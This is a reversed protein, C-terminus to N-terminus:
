RLFSFISFGMFKASTLQLAELNTQARVLESSVEALDIDELNSILVKSQVIFGQLHEKSTKIRNVRGGVESTINSVQSMASDLLGITIGITAVDNTELAVKFDDVVQYIDVPVTFGIGKFIRDGTIGYTFSVGRGIFIASENTDGMYNGTADFAKTDTKFGSFLNVDGVKTNGISLLSDFIGQVEYSNALRLTADMTESRTSIALEKLRSLKDNISYITSDVNALYDETFEINREYQVLSNLTNKYQAGLTMAVPDDSPKTIKKGTSLQQHIDLLRTSANEMGTMLSNFMMNNSVRM